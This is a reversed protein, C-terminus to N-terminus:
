FHPPFSANKKWRFFISINKCVVYVGMQLGFQYLRQFSIGCSKEEYVFSDWSESYISLFVSNLCDGINRMYSIRVKNKRGHQWPLSIFSAWVFMNETVNYLISLLFAATAASWIFKLIKDKLLGESRQCSSSIM